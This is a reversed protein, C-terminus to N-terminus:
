SSCSTVNGDPSILVGTLRQSEFAGTDVAIRGRGSIGPRDVISHGHVVWMGDSRPTTFFAPHGWLQTNRTQAEPACTPDMGAHVVFVNGSRWQVPRESLWTLIDTGIADRLRDALNRIGLNWDRMGEISIGYSRLTDGGGHRLWRRGNGVPDELFAFMMEEHNGLLCVINPERQSMEYLLSLVAASDPGRDIYDGTLVIDVNHRPSRASIQVLLRELLHINGHVDGIVWLPRSPAPPTFAVDAHRSFIRGFRQIYSRIASM